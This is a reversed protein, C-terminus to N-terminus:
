RLLSADTKPLESAVLGPVLLRNGGGGDGQGVRNTEGHILEGPPHAAVQVEAAAPPTGPLGPLVAGGADLGM